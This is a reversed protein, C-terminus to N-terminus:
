GLLARLLAFAALGAAAAGAVKAGTKAVSPAAARPEEIVSARRGELPAFAELVLGTKLEQVSVGGTPAYVGKWMEEAMAAQKRNDWFAATTLDFSAKDNEVTKRISYFADLDGRQLAEFATVAKGFAEIAYTKKLPDTMQEVVPPVVGKFAELDIKPMAGAYREVTSKFRGMFDPISSRQMTGYLSHLVDNKTLGESLASGLDIASGAEALSAFAQWPNPPRGSFASAAGKGIISGFAAGLQPMGTLSGILVSSGVAIAQLVSPAIQKWDREFDFGEEEWDQIEPKWQYVHPEIGGSSGAFYNVKKRRPVFDDSFDWYHLIVGNDHMVDAPLGGEPPDDTTRQEVLRNYARLRDLRTTKTGHFTRNRFDFGLDGTLDLYYAEDEPAPYRMTELGKDTEVKEMTWRLPRPAPDYQAPMPPPKYAM